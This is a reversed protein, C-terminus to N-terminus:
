GRGRASRVEAVRADHEAMYEDVEKKLAEEDVVSDNYEQQWGAPLSFDRKLTM